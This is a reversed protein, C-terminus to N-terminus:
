KSKEAAPAAAKDTPPAAATETAGEVRVKGGPTVALQGAVVVREGAKVGERLVVLGDQRQGVVAPRMEATGDEKVVYVFTGKGSLQPAAAPVLVAAQLTELVLRVNVFRGPWFRRDANPVTARLKVTGSADQVANDLFTLQGERADAADDPLRVEVHLSGKAMNSQVRTLENEPVTFDVYVPDLREIVVLPDGSAAIVNGADVLRHGARGAIPSRITCYDLDIKASAVAAEAVKVQAEAQREDPAAQALEAEAQRVEAENMDVASKKADFDSQSVARTAVLKEVRAFEARALDRVARARALTAEPRQTATKARTLSAQASLVSAEAAAVRAQFPRPDITFLVDGKAIDAGDEFPATEIRGAVQAKVAVTERAVVRGIEDLYVPVDRAIAATVSVPAPPREFAGAPAAPKSCAVLALALALLAPPARRSGGPVALRENM